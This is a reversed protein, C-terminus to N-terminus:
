SNNIKPRAASTVREAPLPGPHPHRGEAAEVKQWADIARDLYTVKKAQPLRDYQQKSLFRFSWTMSPSVRASAKRHNDPLPSLSATRKPPRGTQLFFRCPNYHGRSLIPRV